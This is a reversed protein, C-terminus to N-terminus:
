PVDSLGAVPVDSLGAVLPPPDTIRSSASHVSFDTEAASGLPELMLLYSHATFDGVNQATACTFSPDFHSKKRDVLPGHCDTFGASAQPERRDRGERPSRPGSCSISMPVSGMDFAEAVSSPPPHRDWARSTSEGRAGDTPRHFVPYSRGLGDPAGQVTRARLARNAASAAPRSRDASAVRRAAAPNGVPLVKSAQSEPADEIGAGVWCASRVRSHTLRRSFRTTHPGDPVPLVNRSSASPWCATSSPRLTAQNVRSSRPTRSRRWRASSVTVLAM